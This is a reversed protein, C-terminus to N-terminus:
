QLKKDKGGFFFRLIIDLFLNAAVQTRSCFGFDM